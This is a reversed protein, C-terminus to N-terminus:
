CATRVIQVPRIQATVPPNIPGLSGKGLLGVLNMSFLPLRTCGVEESRRFVTALQLRHHRAPHVVRHIHNECTTSLPNKRGGKQSLWRKALPVTQDMRNIAPNIAFGIPFRLLRLM